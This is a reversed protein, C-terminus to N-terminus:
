SARRRGTWIRQEDGTSQGGWDLSRYSIAEALHAVGIRDDSDLDAITRAVKLVRHVARASLGLRSSAQKLLEHGKPGVRCFEELDAVGMQANSLPRSPGVVGSFREVQRLRAEAVRDRVQASTEDPREGALEDYSLRPVDIQIDVRDVLPGSLRSRYRAVQAASCVCARYPDGLHGCPCPNMAGVLMVRAPFTVSAKARTITISGDELPQRLSELTGRQFELVEDLFLVGNHALTLEGPKPGPGGGVLGAMSVSHHPARFPRRDILRRAGLLGAVSYIRTCELSEQTTMPPLLSALRRALMSKGSGPPGIMLLNHGGAAAVELARKAAEQGRVDVLDPARRDPEAAASALVPVPMDAEGRLDAVVQALNTCRRVDLGSVLAAEQANENPVILRGLGEERALMAVSLVGRVPRISGDLALEGVAMVGDLASQPILDLGALIGLAVPLDFATTDKRMEAPALNVTIKRAPLALGTNALATRIRVRGEAVATAALGVLHYGPLGGGVDVEVEVKYADVGVLDASYIKVHM